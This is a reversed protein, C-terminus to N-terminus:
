KGVNVHSLDDEEEQEEGDRARAVASASAGDDNGHGEERQAAAYDRGVLSRVVSLQEGELADIRLLPRAKADTSRPPKPSM